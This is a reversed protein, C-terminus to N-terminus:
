NVVVITERPISEKWDCLMGAEISKKSEREAARMCLLLYSLLAMKLSAPNLVQAFRNSFQSDKPDIRLSLLQWPRSYATAAGRAMWGEAEVDHNLGGGDDCSGFISNYGACEDDGQFFNIGLLHLQVNRIMVEKSFSTCLLAQM